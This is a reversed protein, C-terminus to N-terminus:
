LSPFKDCFKAVHTLYEEKDRRKIRKADKSRMFRKIEKEHAPYLKAFSKANRIQLKKEATILFYDDSRKYSLEGDKAILRKSSEKVFSLTNGEFFMLSYGKSNTKPKFTGYPTKFFVVQEQNLSLPQLHLPHLVYVEQNLIDYKLRVNTYLRNDYNLTSELWNPEEEIFFVYTGSGSRPLSPVPGTLPKTNTSDFLNSYWKNLDGELNFQDLNYGQSMASFHALLLLFIFSIHRM